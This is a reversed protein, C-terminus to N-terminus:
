EFSLKRTSSLGLSMSFAANEFIGIYTHIYGSDSILSITKAKSTQNKCNRQAISPKVNPRIQQSTWEQSFQCSHEINEVQSYEKKSYFSPSLVTQFHGWLGECISPCCSNSRKCWQESNGEQCRTLVCSQKLGAVALVEVKITTSIWQTWWLTKILLDSLGSFNLDIYILLYKGRLHHLVSTSLSM